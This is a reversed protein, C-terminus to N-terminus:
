QINFIREGGAPVTQSSGDKFNIELSDVAKVSIKGRSMSIQRASVIKVHTGNGGSLFEIITGNVFAIKGQMNAPVDIVDGRMVEAITFVEQWSKGREIRIIGDRGNYVSLTAVFGPTSSTVVTVAATHPQIITKQNTWWWGTAGAAVATSVLLLSILLKPNM